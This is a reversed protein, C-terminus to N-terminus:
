WTNLNDCVICRLQFSLAALKRAKIAGLDAGIIMLSKSGGTHLDGNANADTNDEENDVTGREFGEGGEHKPANDIEPDGLDM